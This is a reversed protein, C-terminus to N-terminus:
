AGCTSHSGIGPEPGALGLLRGLLRPRHAREPREHLQRHVGNEITVATQRRSRASPRPSPAWSLATSSSPWLGSGSGGYRLGPRPAPWPPPAAPTDMGRATRPPPAAPDSVPPPPKEATMVGEQRHPPRRPKFGYGESGCDSARGTSSLGGRPRLTARVTGPGFCPPTGDIPLGNSVQGIDNGVGVTCTGRSCFWRAQSGAMGGTALTAEPSTMSNSQRSADFPWNVALEVTLSMAVRTNSWTSWTLPGTSTRPASGPSVSWISRSSKGGGVPSPRGRDRAKPQQGIVERVGGVLDGGERRRRGPRTRARYGPGAPGTRHPPPRPAPSPAATWSEAPRGHRCSSVRCKTAPM